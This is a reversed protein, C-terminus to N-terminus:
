RVWFGGVSGDKVSLTALADDGGNKFAIKWLTVRYGQQKLEGLYLLDYGAKLKPALQAVVAEFQEKKLQRFPAEGDAVFADYDSEVVATVLKTAFAKDEKRPDAAHLVAPSAILLIALLGISRTVLTQM